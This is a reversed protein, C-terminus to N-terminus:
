DNFIREYTKSSWIDVILNRIMTEFGQPKNELKLVNHLEESLRILQVATVSKSLSTPNDFHHLTTMKAYNMVRECRYLCELNFIEDEGYNMDEIFKIDNLAILERKYIKNWVMCFLRPPHVASFEGWANMFRVVTEGNLRRRYHNFQIMDYRDGYQEIAKLMIEIGDPMLEDDSDLFTIFEGKAECIGVNRSVSVGCNKESHIVKFDYEDCIAASGDTSGDDIVIVEINDDSRVSDLCRRLWPESNHVPIVISLKM